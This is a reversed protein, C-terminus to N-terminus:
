SSGAKFWDSLAFISKSILFLTVFYWYFLYVFIWLTYDAYFFGFFIRSHIFETASILLDFCGGDTDYVLCMGSISENICTHGCSTYYINDLMLTGESSISKVKSYYQLTAQLISSIGTCLSPSLLTISLRCTINVSKLAKLSFWCKWCSFSDNACPAQGHNYVFKNLKAM